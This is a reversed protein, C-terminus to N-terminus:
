ARCMGGLKWWVGFDTVKLNKTALGEEERHRPSVLHRKWESTQYLYKRKDGLSNQM